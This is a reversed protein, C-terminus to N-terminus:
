NNDPLFNGPLSNGIAKTASGASFGPTTNVPPEIVAPSTTSGAAQGSYYDSGVASGTQSVVNSGSYTSEGYASGGYADTPQSYSDYTSSSAASCGCGCDAPASQVYTPSSYVPAPSTAASGCTGGTCCGGILGLIALGAITMSSRFLFLM